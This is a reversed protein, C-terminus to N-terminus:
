ILACRSYHSEPFEVLKDRGARVMGSRRLGSAAEADASLSMMIPQFIFVMTLQAWGVCGLPWTSPSPIGGLFSVIGAIDAWSRSCGAAADAPRVECAAM